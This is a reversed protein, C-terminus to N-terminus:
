TCKTVKLPHHIEWFAHTTVDTFPCSGQAKVELNLLLRWESAGVKYKNKLAIWDDKFICSISRAKKL